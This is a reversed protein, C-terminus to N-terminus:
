GVVRSLGVYCRDVAELPTEDEFDEQEVVLWETGTERAAAVVDAVPVVGEGVARSPGDRGAEDKIHITPCRGGLERLLAVPDAGGRYAWGVDLQLFLEPVAALRELPTVGERPELERGHNHFGVAIGQAALRDAALSIRAVVEDVGALTDPWTASPVIVRTLGLEHAEEIVADPEQELRDLQVHWGCAVLGNAELLHRWDAAPRGHLNWPEVGAYGMRAVASITGDLDAACAEKVSYLQLGIQM